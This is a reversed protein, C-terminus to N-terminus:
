QIFHKSDVLTSLKSSRKIHANLSYSPFILKGWMVGCAKEKYARLKYVNFEIM